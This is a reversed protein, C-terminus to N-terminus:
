SRQRGDNGRQRNPLHGVRRASRRGGDRGVPGPPALLPRVAIMQAPTDLERGAVSPWRGIRMATGAVGTARPDSATVDIIILERQM